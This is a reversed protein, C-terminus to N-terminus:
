AEEISARLMEMFFQSKESKLECLIFKLIEEDAEIGLARFFIFLPIDFSKNGKKLYTVAVAVTKTKAMLHVYTTKAYLFDEKPVSKVHASYEYTDDTSKVIYLKNEAKREQSVVVKEMGDVIFFGGHENESEGMQKLLEGSADNLVCAKSRLMIPIRGLNVRKLIEPTPHSMNEYVYKKDNLMSYEIDIDAFLHSAYTLNKLRCENPYMPRMTQTLSDFITPKSVYLGKGDKGGYYIAMEYDINPNKKDKVFIRQPNLFPIKFTSPIRNLLFDNYSDIHHKTLYNPTEDFYSHIAHWTDNSIDM